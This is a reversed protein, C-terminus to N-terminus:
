HFIFANLSYVYGLYICNKTNLEKNKSERKGDRKLCTPIHILVLHIVKIFLEPNKFVPCTERLICVKLKKRILVLFLSHVTTDYSVCQLCDTEHFTNCKYWYNQEFTPMSACIM